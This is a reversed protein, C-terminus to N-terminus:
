FDSPQLFISKKSYERVADQVAAPLRKFNDKIFRTDRSLDKKYGLIGPANEQIILRLFRLEAKTSDKQIVPELKKHGEKFLSLKKQAGSVLGAKKMLLAGEFAAKDPTAAAKLLDLQQDVAIRDKGAMAHYFDARNFRNVAEQGFSGKSCGMCLLLILTGIWRM